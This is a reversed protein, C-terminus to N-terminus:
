PFFCFFGDFGGISGLTGYETERGSSIEANATFKFCLQYSFREQQRVEKLM